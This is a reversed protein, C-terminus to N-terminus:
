GAREGGRLFAMADMVAWGGHSWGALVIREPDAWSQQRLYAVVAYVDGARDFGAAERGTCVRKLMVDTGVIGRSAFSDVVVVAYGLEVFFDHWGSNHSVTHLCGPIVAVTPFPGDGEPKLVEFHPELAMTHKVITRTDEGFMRQLIVYSNGRAYLVFFVLLIFLIFFILFKKRM